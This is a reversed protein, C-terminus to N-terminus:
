STNERIHRNQGATVGEHAAGGPAGGGAGGGGGGRGPWPGSIGAAAIPSGRGWDQRCRHLDMGSLVLTGTGGDM